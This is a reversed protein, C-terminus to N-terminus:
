LCLNDGYYIKCVSGFNFLCVKLLIQNQAFISFRRRFALHFTTSIRQWTVSLSPSSSLTGSLYSSSPSFINRIQSQVIWPWATQWLLSSMVSRASISSHFLYMFHAFRKTGYIGDKFKVIKESELGSKCVSKFSFNSVLASLKHNLKMCFSKHLIKFKNRM